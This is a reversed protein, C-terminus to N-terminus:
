GDDSQARQVISVSGRGKNPANVTQTIEDGNAERSEYTGTGQAEYLSAGSSRPPPGPGLTSARM